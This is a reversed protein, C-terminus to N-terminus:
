LLSQNQTKLVSFISFILMLFGIGLPHDLYPTTFHTIGLAIVSFAGGFALASSFSDVKKRAVSLGSRVISILLGLYVVVAIIGMKLWIDLWGWEFAYHSYWGEVSRELNYPGENRYTLITGFGSGLFWDNKIANWLVPLLNWRSKAAAETADSVRDSLLDMLTYGEYSAPKPYPFYVIIAILGFSIVALSALVKILRLIAADKFVRKFTFLFIIMAAFGSLWFSRSLSIIVVAACLAQLCWIILKDSKRKLAVLFITLFIFFFLFPWVHTQLFIRYFGGGIEAIEGIGTRRVWHYLIANVYFIKHSFVFLLAFTKLVVALLAGAAVSLVAKIQENTRIWDVFVPFLAFYFWNNANLFIDQFENGNVAGRIIGWLVLVFFVYTWKPIRGLIDFLRKLGGRRLLSSAWLSIVVLFLGIRISLSYDDFTLAFLYGKSGIVLEAILIYLAYESRIFGFIVTFLIILIFTLNRIEPFSFSALSILEFFVVFLFVLRILRGSFIDGFIREQM